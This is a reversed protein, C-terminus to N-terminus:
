EKSTNYAVAQHLALAPRLVYHSTHWFCLLQEVLGRLDQAVVQELDTDFTRRSRACMQQSLQFICTTTYGLSSQDAAQFFTIGPTCALVAHM